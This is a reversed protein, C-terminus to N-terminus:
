PVAPDYADTAASAAARCIGSGRSTGTPRGGSSDSLSLHGNRLSPPTPGGEDEVAIRVWHQECVEVHV